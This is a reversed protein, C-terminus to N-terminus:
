KDEKAIHHQGHCDTCVPEPRGNGRQKWRVIVKEPAVDHRPHCARCAANVQARTFTVDPRTAGINEDNAHKASVGHCKTCPVQKEVHKKALEERVFTMHCVYCGANAALPNEDAAPRTEPAAAGLFLSVLLGAAVAAIRPRIM